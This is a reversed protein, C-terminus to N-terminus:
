GVVAKPALRDGVHRSKGDIGMTSTGNRIIGSFTAVAPLQTAWCMAWDKCTNGMRCITM